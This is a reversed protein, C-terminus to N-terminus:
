GSSYGKSKPFKHIDIEIEDWDEIPQLGFSTLRPHFCSRLGLQEDMINDPRLPFEWDSVQANYIRRGTPPYLSIVRARHYVDISRQKISSFAREPDLDHEVTYFNFPLLELIKDLQEGKLIGKCEIVKFKNKEDTM